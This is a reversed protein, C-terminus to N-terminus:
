INKYFSYNEETSTEDHMIFGQKQLLHVSAKNLAETHAIIKTIESQKKIEKLSAAILESALGKGWMNEALFYGLYATKFETEPIHLILMGILRNNEKHIIALIESEKSAQLLWNQAQKKGSIHLSPPLHLYVSPTLIESLNQSFEDIAEHNQWATVFLRSTEFSLPSLPMIDERLPHKEM